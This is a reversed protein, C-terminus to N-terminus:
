KCPAVIGNKWCMRAKKPAPVPKAPPPASAGVREKSRVAPAFLKKELALLDVVPTDTVPGYDVTPETWPSDALASVAGSVAESPAVSTASTDKESEPVITAGSEGSPQPDVEEPAPLEIVPTESVPGYDVSRGQPLSVGALAPTPVLMVPVWSLAPPMGPMTQMWIPMFMVRGALGQFHPMPQMAPLTTPAASVSGGPLAQSSTPSAASAQAAEVTTAAPAEPAPAAAAPAVEAAGDALAPGSFFVALISLLKLGQKIAKM